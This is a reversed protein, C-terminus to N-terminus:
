PHKNRDITIMYVLMENFIRFQKFNKFSVYLNAMKHVNEPTRHSTEIFIIMVPHWRLGNRKRRGAKRQPRRRQTQVKWKEDHRHPAIGFPAVPVNRYPVM